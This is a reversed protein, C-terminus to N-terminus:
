ECIHILTFNSYHFTQFEDVTIKLLRRSAIRRLGFHMVGAALAKLAQKGKNQDMSATTLVVIPFTYKGRISM